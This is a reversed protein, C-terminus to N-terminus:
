SQVMMARVTEAMELARVETNLLAVLTGNKRVEWGMNSRTVTLKNMPHM